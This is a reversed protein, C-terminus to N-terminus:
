ILRQVVVVVVVVVIPVATCLLVGLIWTGAPFLFFVSIEKWFAHLM